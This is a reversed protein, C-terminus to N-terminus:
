GRTAGCCGPAVGPRPSAGQRLTLVLEGAHQPRQDAAVALCHEILQALQRDVEPNLERVPLPGRQHRALLISATEELSAESVLPGFLHRGTLLEYLM